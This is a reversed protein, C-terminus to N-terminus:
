CICSLCWLYAGIGSIVLLLCKPLNWEDLRVGVQHDTNTIGSAHANLWPDYYEGPPGITSRQEKTSM